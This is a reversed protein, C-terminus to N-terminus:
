AAPGGPLRCSPLPSSFLAFVFLAVPTLLRILGLKQIQVRFEPNLIRPDSPPHRTQTTPSTVHESVVPDGFPPKPIPVIAPNERNQQTKFIFSKFIFSVRRAFDRERKRAMRHKAATNTPQVASYGAETQGYIRSPLKRKWKRSCWGVGGCWVM